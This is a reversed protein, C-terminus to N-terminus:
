QQGPYLEYQGSVVIVLVRVEVVAVEVRLLKQVDRQSSTVTYMKPDATHVHSSLQSISFLHQGPRVCAHGVVTVVERVVLSVVVVEGVVDDVSVVDTEVDVEAEVVVVTM